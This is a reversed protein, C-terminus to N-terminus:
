VESDNPISVTGFDVGMAPLLKQFFADRELVVTVGDDAPHFCLKEASLLEEDVFYHLQKEDDFILELPSVRGSSVHLLKQLIADEAFNLRGSGMQRSTPGTFFRKGLPMTLLFFRTKQRNCLVLNKCHTANVVGNEADHRLKEAPDDTPEHSFSVYPIAAKDLFAFIADRDCIMDCM